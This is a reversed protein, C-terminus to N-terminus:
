KKGEQKQSQIIAFDAEHQKISNFIIKNNTHTWTGSGYRDLAGYSFFFQFTSDQNLKFGSATEMVGRLYYEGTVSISSEQSNSHMSIVLLIITVLKEMSLNHRVKDKIFQKKGAAPLSFCFTM